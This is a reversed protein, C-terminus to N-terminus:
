SPRRLSTRRSARSSASGFPATVRIYREVEEIARVCVGHAAIPNDLSDLRAREAEVIKEAPASRRGDFQEKASGFRAAIRPNAEIM